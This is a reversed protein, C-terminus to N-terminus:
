IHHRPSTLPILKPIKAMVPHKSPVLVPSPPLSFDSEDDSYSSAFDLAPLQPGIPTPDEHLVSPYKFTTAYDDVPRDARRDCPVSDTHRCDQSCYLDDGDLVQADCVCCFHPFFGLDTMM